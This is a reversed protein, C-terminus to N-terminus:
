QPRRPLTRPATPGGCKFTYSAGSLPTIQGDIRTRLICTVRENNKAAFLVKDVGIKNQPPAKVTRQWSRGVGCELEYPLEGAANTQIAVLAEARCMNAAVPRLTLTGKIPELCQVNLTKQVAADPFGVAELRVPGSYAGFELVKTAKAVFANGAKEADASGSALISGSKDRIRYQVAKPQNATLTVRARVKKKCLDKKEVDLNLTAESVEFPPCTVTYDKQASDTQGNRTAEIGFTHAGAAASFTKTEEIQYVKGTNLFPVEKAERTVPATFAGNHSFRFTAKPRVCKNYPYNIFARVEINKPCAYVPSKSSVQLLINAPQPQLIIRAIETALDQEGDGKTNGMSAIVLKENPYVRLYARSGLQGGSKAYYGYGDHSGNLNWGYGYDSANDPKTLMCDYPSRQVGAAGFWCTVTDASFLEQKELKVGFRMLDYASAEMGGGAYKWSLNDPTWTQLDGNSDVFYVESRDYKPTSRDECRLTSLGNPNSIEDLLLSCFSKGTKAEVAAAFVTYAPTSYKYSDSVFPDNM